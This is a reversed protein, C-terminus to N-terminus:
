RMIDLQKGNLGTLKRGAQFETFVTHNGTRGFCHRVFITHFHGNLDRCLVACSSFDFQGDLNCLGFTRHGRRRSLFKSISAFRQRKDIGTGASGTRNLVLQIIAFVALINGHYRIGTGVGDVIHHDAIRVM